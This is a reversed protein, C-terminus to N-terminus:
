IMTAVAMRTKEDPKAETAPSEIGSNSKQHILAPAKTPKVFPKLDYFRAPPGAHQPIKPEPTNTDM